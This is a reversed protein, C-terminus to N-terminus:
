RQNKSSSQGFSPSSFQGSYSEVSVSIPSIPVQELLDSLTGGHLGGLEPEQRAAAM